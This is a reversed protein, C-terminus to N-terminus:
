FRPFTSACFLAASAQCSRAFVQLIDQLDLRSAILDSIGRNTKNTVSLRRSATVNLHDQEDKDIVSLEQHLKENAALSLMIWTILTIILM